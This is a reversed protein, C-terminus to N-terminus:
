YARRADNDSLVIGIHSMANCYIGRVVVNMITREQQRNKEAEASYQVCQVRFETDVSSPRQIYLGIYDTKRQSLSSFLIRCAFFVFFYAKPCYSAQLSLDHILFIL